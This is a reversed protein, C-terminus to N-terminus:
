SAVGMGLDAGDYTWAKLEELTSPPEVEHEHLRLDLRPVFTFGPSAVLRAARREPMWARFLAAELRSYAMFERYPLEHGAFVYTVQDGADLHRKALEFATELHPAINHTDIFLVNAM